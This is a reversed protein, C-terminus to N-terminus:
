DKNNFLTKIDIVGSKISTVNEKIEMIVKLKDALSDITQQYKEERTKSDKLQIFFLSVFLAAWLGNNTAMEFIKEWMDQKERKKNKRKIQTKQNDNITRTRIRKIM